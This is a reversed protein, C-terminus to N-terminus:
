PTPACQDVARRHPRVLEWITQRSCRRSRRVSRTGAAGGRSRKRAPRWHWASGTV